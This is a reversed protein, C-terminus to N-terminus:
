SRTIESLIDQYVLVFASVRYNFEAIDILLIFYLYMGMMDVFSYVESLDEARRPILVPVIYCLKTGSTM